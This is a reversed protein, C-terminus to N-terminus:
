VLLEQLLPVKKFNLYLEYLVYGAHWRANRTSEVKSLDARNLMRLIAKNLCAYYSMLIIHEYRKRKNSM